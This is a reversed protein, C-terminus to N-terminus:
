DKPPVYRRVADFGPDPLETWTKWVDKPPLYVTEPITVDSSYRGGATTYLTIQEPVLYESELAFTIGDNRSLAIPFHRGGALETSFILPFKIDPKNAWSRCSVDIRELVVDTGRNTVRIVFCPGRPRIKPDSSAYYQRPHAQDVDAVLDVSQEQRKLHAVEEAARASRVSAVAAQRSIAVSRSSLSYSLTAIVLSIVSVAVSTIAVVVQPRRYGIPDDRPTTGQNMPCSNVM